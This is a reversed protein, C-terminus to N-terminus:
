TAQEDNFVYGAALRVSRGDIDEGAVCNSENMSNARRVTPLLSENYSFAMLTGKPIPLKVLPHMKFGRLFSPQSAAKGVVRFAPDVEGLIAAKRAEKVADSYPETEAHHVCGFDPGTWCGGGDGMDDNPGVLM